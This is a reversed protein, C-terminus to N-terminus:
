SSPKELPAAQLFMQVDRTPASTAKAIFPIGSPYIPLLSQKALSTACPPRIITNTCYRKLGTGTFDVSLM